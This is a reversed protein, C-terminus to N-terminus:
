PAPKAAAARKADLAADDYADLAADYANAYAVAADYADLGNLLVAVRYAELARPAAVDLAYAARAAASV